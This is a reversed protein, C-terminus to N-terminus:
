LQYSFTRPPSVHHTTAHCLTALGLAIPPRNLPLPAFSVNPLPPTLAPLEGPSIAIDGSRFVTSEKSETLLLTSTTLSVVSVAAPLKCSGPGVVLMATSAVLKAYAATGPAMKFPDAGPATTTIFRPAPPMVAVMPTGLACVKTALGSPVWNSTKLPSESETVM